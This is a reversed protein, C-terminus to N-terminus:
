QFFITASSEGTIKIHKIKKNYKENLFCEIFDGCIKQKCLECVLYKKDKNYLKMMRGCNGCVIDFM